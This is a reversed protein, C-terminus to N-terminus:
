MGKVHEEDGMFRPVLLLTEYGFGPPDDELAVEGRRFRGVYGPVNEHWERHFRRLRCRQGNPAPPFTSRCRGFIPPM